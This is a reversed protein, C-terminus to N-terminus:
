YPANASNAREEAEREADVAARHYGAACDCYTVGYIPNDVDVYGRDECRGCAPLVRRGTGQCDHCTTYAPRGHLTMHMSPVEGTGSCSPCRLLNRAAEAPTIILPHNM